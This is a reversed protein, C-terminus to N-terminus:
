FLPVQASTYIFEREIIINFKICYINQAPGSDM